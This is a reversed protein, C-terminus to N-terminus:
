EEATFALLVNGAMGGNRAYGSNVFLMGGVAVPRVIFRWVNNALGIWSDDQAGAPIFNQLQPGLFYILLPILLGWAIISGSFNLAALHRM